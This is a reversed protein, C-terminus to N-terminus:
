HSSNLRTSKRDQHEEAMGRYDDRDREAAELRARLDANESRLEASARETLQQIREITDQRRKIEEIERWPDPTPGYNGDGPSHIEGCVNNTPAQSPLWDPGISQDNMARREM